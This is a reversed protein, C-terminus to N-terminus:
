RLPEIKEIPNGRITDIWAGYLEEEHLTIWGSVIKYQNSPLSGALM